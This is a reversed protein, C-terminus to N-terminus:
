DTSEGAGDGADARFVRRIRLCLQRIDNTTRITASPEDLLTISASSLKRLEAHSLALLGHASQLLDKLLAEQHDQRATRALEDLGQELDEVWALLIRETSFAMLVSM